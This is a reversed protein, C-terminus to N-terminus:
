FCPDDDDEDSPDYEILHPQKEARLSPYDWVEFPSKALDVVMARAVDETVPTICYISSPGIFKSFAERASEKKDDAIAPVDVRVFSQGGIEEESVFGAYKKHGMVEVLAWSKFGNNQENM